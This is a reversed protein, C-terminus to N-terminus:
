RVRKYAQEVEIRKIAAEREASTFVEPRKYAEKAKEYDGVAAYYSAEVELLPRLNTLQDSSNDKFVMSRMVRVEDLAITKNGRDLYIQARLAHVNFIGPTKAVAGDILKCADDVNGFKLEYEARRTTYFSRGEEEGVLKLREFLQAVEQDQKINGRSTGRAMLVRLLIDLIYANDPAVEFAKRAFLEADEINGRVLCISAIEHAASFNGPSDEYAKRFLQEAEPLRGRMRANFGTLFNLNSRAWRDNANSRLIKIGKEFDSQENRRAAALCLLRCAEIKGAPSLRNAGDLATVTFSICEEFRGQDYRRRALLVLHSPLLLADFIAPVEGGGDLTAIIAADVLSVSVADTEIKVTLEESVAKLVERRERGSLEFRRDRDVAVQLPPSVSFSSGDTEIIHFDLLKTIASSAEAIESGALKSLLEFDLSTFTKLAFLITKQTASFDIRSLFDSARRRKWQIIESPDGLVVSIGYHKVAEVLFSVNFPHGDALGVLQSLEDASYSVDADRLMLAILQKTEDSSLPPLRSFVVGEAAAHLRYPMMREAIFIIFPRRQEKAAAIINQIPSQFTGEDDLLGGHDVVFVAERAEILRELLQAILLAKGADHEAAFAAIRTRWASITSIPALKENFKRYLEEYGDLENVAIEPFVSIVSPYVDKFLRKSFTRRGIGSFGSVYIARIRTRLPDILKEKLDNVEKARGVFPQNIGQASSRLLILSHQILRAITQDSSVNRVFNFIKWYDTAAVFAEEDLCIVLFREVIGRSVLETALMSEFRVAGSNLSAKSLFLVFLASRRLADQIAQANILGHDFTQADLEVNALGLQDAVSEVLAKDRSSHSLFAKM